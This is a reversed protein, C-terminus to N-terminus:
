DASVREEEQAPRGHSEPSQATLPSAGYMVQVVLAAMDNRTMAEPNGGLRVVEVQLMAGSFEPPLMSFYEPESSYENSDEPQAASSENSSCSPHLLGHLFERRSIAGKPKM